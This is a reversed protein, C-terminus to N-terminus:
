KKRVQRIQIDRLEYRSDAIGIGIRQRDPPTWEPASSLISENGSWDIIEKGSLHVNIFANGKSVRVEGAFKYDKANEINGPRFMTENESCHKNNIYSLGHERGHNTSINVMVNRSGVPLMIALADDGENRRFTFQIEYDDSGIRGPLQIMSSPLSNTLVGSEVSWRGRYTLDKADKATLKLSVANKETLPGVGGPDAPVPKQDPRAPDDKKPTALSAIAIPKDLDPKIKWDDRMLVSMEDLALIIQAYSVLSEQLLGRFTEKRLQDHERDGEVAVEFSDSLNSAVDELRKALAAFKGETTKKDSADVGQRLWADDLKQRSDSVTAKITSFTRVQDNQAADIISLAFRVFSAASKVVEAHQKSDSDAGNLKPEFRYLPRKHLDYHAVARFAIECWLGGQEAELRQRRELLADLKNGLKKVDEEARAKATENARYIYDFQPPRQHVPLGQRSPVGDSAKNDAQPPKQTLLTTTHYTTNRDLPHYFFKEATTGYFIHWKVPGGGRRDMTENEKDSRKADGSRRAKQRSIDAIAKEVAELSTETNALRVMLFILRQDIEDWGDALKEAPAIAAPKNQASAFRGLSPTLGISGIMGILLLRAIAMSEARPNCLLPEVHNRAEYIDLDAGASQVTKPTSPLSSKGMRSTTFCSLNRFYFPPAVWVIIEEVSPATLQFSTPNVPRAPLRCPRRTM